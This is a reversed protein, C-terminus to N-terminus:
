ICIKEAASLTLTYNILTSDFFFHKTERHCNKGLSRTFIRYKRNFIRSYLIHLFIFFCVNACAYSCTRLRRHNIIERTFFIIREITCYLITGALTINNKNILKKIRVDLRERLCPM